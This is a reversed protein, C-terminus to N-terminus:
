RSWSQAAAVTAEILAPCETTEPTQWFAPGRVLRADVDHGADRWKQVSAKVAPSLEPNQAGQVELWAIRASQGPPELEASEIGSAMAPGLAYGIVEVAHGQSLQERLQQTGTYGGGAQGVIQSGVKLRLFQQLYSKGSIVPQWFVMAPVADMARAAQTVLLCGARLGWLAPAHGTERQLWTSAELVDDLWRQWTADGFDGASDGCGFLDIQLVVWGAEAFARAQLAAMRRCRNMEEAFPHVFLLAGRLAAGPMHMLCYRNGQGMPLFFADM